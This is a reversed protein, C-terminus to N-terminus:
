GVTTIKVDSPVTFTDSPLTENVKTNSYEITTTQGNATTITMKVPFNLSTSLWMKTTTTPSAALSYELVRCAQGNVQETDLDKVKATALDKSAAMPDQFPISVKTKTGQKTAPQYMTMTNAALDIIIVSEINGAKTDIKMMKGSEEWMSGSTATGQPTTVSFDTSLSQIKAYAGFLDTLSGGGGPTTETGASAQTTASSSGSTAPTSTGTSSVATTASTVGTGTVSSTTTTTAGGCAAVALGLAAVAVILLFAAATKSLKNPM